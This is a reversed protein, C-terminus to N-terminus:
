QDIRWFEEILKKRNEVVEYIEKAVVETDDINNGFHECLQGYRESAFIIQTMLRKKRETKDYFDLQDPLFYGQWQEDFFVKIKNPVDSHVVTAFRGILNNYFEDDVKEIIVHDGNKFDEITKM